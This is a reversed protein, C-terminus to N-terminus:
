EAGEATDVEVEAVATEAEKGEKELDVGQLPNAQVRAEAHRHLAQNADKGQAMLQATNKTKIVYFRVAYDSDLWVWGAAIRKHYQSVTLQRVHRPLTSDGGSYAVLVHSLWM